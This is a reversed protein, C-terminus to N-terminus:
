LLCVQQAAIRESPTIEVGDLRSLQPLCGVVFPRYDPHSCCPNGTLFLERLATNAHLRAVTLLGAPAGVFNATLDLKVLSECGELNEVQM